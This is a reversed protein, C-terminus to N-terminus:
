RTVGRVALPRSWALQVAAYWYDTLLMAVESAFRDLAGRAARRIAPELATKNRAAWGAAEVVVLRVRRALRGAADGLLERVTRGVILIGRAQALESRTVRARSRAETAADYAIAQVLVAYAYFSPQEAVAAEALKGGWTRARQAAEVVNRDRRMQRVIRRDSTVTETQKGMARRYQRKSPVAVLLEVIRRGDLKALLEASLRAARDAFPGRAWAQEVRTVHEVVTM